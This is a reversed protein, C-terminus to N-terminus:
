DTKMTGTQHYLEKSKDDDLDHTESKDSNSEMEFLSGLPKKKKTKKSSKKKASSSKLL